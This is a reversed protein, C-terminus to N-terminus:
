PKDEKRRPNSNWMGEDRDNYKNARSEARPVAIEREMSSRDEGFERRNMM